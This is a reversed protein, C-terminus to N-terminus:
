APGSRTNRVVVVTVDDFRAVGTQHGDVMAVLHDCVSQAPERRMGPLSRHVQAIGFCENEANVADTLGDSYLLLTSGPALHIKQEDSVAADFVGLAQGKGRPLPLVRGQDDCMV